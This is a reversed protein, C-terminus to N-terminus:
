LWVLGWWLVACIRLIWVLRLVHPWHRKNWGVRRWRRPISCVISLLLPCPSEKRRSLFWTHPILILLNWFLINSTAILWRIPLLVGMASSFHLSHWRRVCNFDVSSRDLLRRCSLLFSDVFLTISLYVRNVLHSTTIGRHSPHATCTYWQNIGAHWLMILHSIHINNLPKPTQLLTPKPSLHNSFM